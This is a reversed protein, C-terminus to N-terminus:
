ETTRQSFTAACTARSMIADDITEPATVGIGHAHGMLNIGSLSNRHGTNSFIIGGFFPMSVCRSVRTVFLALIGNAVMTIRQHGVAPQVVRAMKETSVAMRAGNRM